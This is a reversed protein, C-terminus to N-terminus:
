AVFRAVVARIVSRANSPIPNDGTAEIDLEFNGKLVDWRYRYVGVSDPNSGDQYCAFEGVGSVSKGGNCFDRILSEGLSRVTAANPYEAAVDPNKLKTAINSVQWDVFDTGVSACKTQIPTLPSCSDQPTQICAGASLQQVDGQPMALCPNDFWTEALTGAPTPPVSRSPPQEDRASVFRAIAEQILPRAAPPVDYNLSLDIKLLLGHGQVDVAYHEPADYICAGQSIGDEYRWYSLGDHSPCSTEPNSSSTLFTLTFYEGNSQGSWVWGCTGHDLHPQAGAFVGAVAQRSLLLCPDKQLQWAPPSTSRASSAGSSSDRQTTTALTASSTAPLLSTTDSSSSRNAGCATLALALVMAAFACVFCRM